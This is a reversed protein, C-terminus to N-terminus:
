YGCAVGRPFEASGHLIAQRRILFSLLATTVGEPDANEEVAIDYCPGDSFTLLFAGQELAAREKGSLGDANAPLAGWLDIANAHVLSDLASYVADRAERGSARVRLVAGCPQTDFRPFCSTNGRGAAQWAEVRLVELPQVRCFRFVSARPQSCETLADWRRGTAVEILLSRFRAMDGARIVLDLGTDKTDTVGPVLGWVIGDRDLANFIETVTNM